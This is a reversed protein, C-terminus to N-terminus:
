SAECPQGNLDTVHISPNLIDLPPSCVHGFVIGREAATRGEYMHLDSGCIASTTVKLLADDPHIIKPMPVDQVTVKFPGDYQVAKM